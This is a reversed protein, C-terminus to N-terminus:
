VQLISTM